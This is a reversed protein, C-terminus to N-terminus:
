KRFAAMLRWEFFPCSKMSSALAHEGRKREGRGEGGAGWGGGGRRGRERVRGGGRGEVIYGEGRWNGQGVQIVHLIGALSVVLGYSERPSTLTCCIQM